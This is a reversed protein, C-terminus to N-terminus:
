YFIMSFGGYEFTLYLASCDRMFFFMILGLFEINNDLRTQIYM